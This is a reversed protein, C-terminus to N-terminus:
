GNVNAHEVPAGTFIFASRMTALPWLASVRAYRDSEPQEYDHHQPALPEVELNTETAHPSGRNQRAQLYTLPARVTQQGTFHGM